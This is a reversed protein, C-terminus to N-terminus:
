IWAFAREMIVFAGGALALSLITQLREGASSAPERAVLFLACPIIYYRPVVLWEPLLFLVTFPLM